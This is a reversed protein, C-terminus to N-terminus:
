FPLNYPSLLAIVLNYCPSFCSKLLPLKHLKQPLFRRAKDLIQM